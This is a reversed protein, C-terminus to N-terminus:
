GVLLRCVLHPRSQLESTHEESRVTEGDARVAILRGYFNGWERRELTVLDQPYRQETMRDELVWRFDHGFLDRNGTKILNRQMFEVDDPVTVGSNRLQEAPVNESSVIEGVLLMQRGDQGIYDTEVVAHPWFHTLGRVAILFLLGFTMILSISVAGANLWIWPGGSSTWKKLSIRM